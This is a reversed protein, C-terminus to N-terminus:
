SSKSNTIKKALLEQDQRNQVLVAINRPEIGEEVELESVAREVEKVLAKKDTAMHRISNPNSITPPKM